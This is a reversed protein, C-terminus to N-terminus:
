KSGRGTFVVAVTQLLIKIDLGITWNDIYELDLKVVDDFNDIDSRGSVQWLGTLGPTMCLRRRYYLSYKEFEDETPPRTGVLSMDGVLINYFQPLEDISTKRIFKGVKTIRPDDKLKFMLGNIENQDQLEQKREEANIYMSRFKYMKFRRGNKGIRTQSFFIPGPSDMRIALAVFPTVMMTILLGVLAGAIDMFRKIMLRRYDAKNVAYTIVTYNGFQEVTSEKENWDAIEINYHCIVGMAEFDRILARVVKKEEHPLNIFVEDLPLQRAVELLNEKGAVVPIDFQRSGGLDHDWVALSSLHFNIPLVQKLNKVIDELGKWESVILVRVESITSRYYNRLIKKLSCHAVFVLVENFVAFYVFVLRSFVEARKFLFLLLATVVLVVMNYKTIATIEVFYGRRIYSRNWDIFFSYIICSIILCLIVLRHTQDAGFSALSGYRFFIALLYSAIMVCLDVALLVYLEILKNKEDVQQM